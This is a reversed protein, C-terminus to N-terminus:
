EVMLSDVEMETTPGFSELQQMDIRAPDGVVSILKPRGRIHGRWFALVEDITARSVREFRAPRPDGSLGQQEWRRVMRAVDRFGIRETRLRNELSERAEAFREPTVPVDEVLGIYAGLAETTKDPQTGIAGIMLSQEGVRGGSRYASGAFYALGRSERLEQYVIGSLGGAFYTNFLMVEPVISEDFDNSGSEVRVQSQATEKEVFLVQNGDTERVRRFLYPPPEALAGKSPLHKEVLRKVEGAPLTGGYDLEHRLSLLQQVAGYLEERTADLIEESTMLKLYPSEEGHRNYLVLATATFEPSKKMDERQVLIIKKLEELTEEDANPRAIWDKLLELSEEFNEDLGSLLFISDSDSAQFTMETGLTYLRKALEETSLDGAGSKDMLQTAMELRKDHDIGKEVILRFTFLNNLPNRTHILRRGGLSLEEYDRGAEIYEPEIPDVPMALIQRAFPSQRAPDIEIPDIRPKEIKVIEHPGDRRWGAVYGGSFYKNAVRVLDDKTVEALRDLQALQEEWTRGALFAERMMSVRGENTELQQMQSKRFDTVIAPILWDEIEGARILALQDLLLDEVEELTQDKKPVGWMFQAGNDNYMQPYSGAERVRQQQNLNINILGATRNDLVMDLIQLAPADADNRSATRFALLVYEEGPYFVEVRDVERLPEEEWVPLEPLDGPRWEAFHGAIIGIAEFPDIDGSMTIAMNNPVYYTEYYRRINRISPNKLHEAEGLTTQQGYPHKKYLLRNVADFILRNKDDMSRNKEEYVTELETHFLRFVPRAFRESEVAAWHEIRNSPLSVKYVTEEVWTHANTGQAGMAKYIKDFENAAAHRAGLQAERNIEEYIAARRDPDTERFHEEYLEEIRDLHPKEAAYDLTGITETGKFLLHELYHALGTTEAPDHKSGARVPIEAYFRPQQENVTLYVTLGNDLQYVWAEMADGPQPARVLTVGAPPPPVPRARQSTGACAAVMAVLGCVVSLRLLMRNM